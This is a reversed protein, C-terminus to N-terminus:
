DRPGGRRQRLSLLRGPQMADAGYRERVEDLAASLRRLKEREPPEFLDPEAARALNTAALGILRVGRDRRRVEGFAGALLTRATDFLDRDLDTATELTASRTVTKFDDHRLKLVVTRAVLQEHRLQAAVRTAFLLLVTELEAPDRLDRGFTTERSVSKTPRDARLVTGGHGHARLKLLRGEEGLLRVLDNESRQQVEWVERLGLEALRKASKPGVGPLARLELGALFGEEWGARVEMLGKPKAADSALKAIMRNPGVGISVALGADARVADRVAEAVPLLSVPHLRETGTFDLYGEDLSAMVVTPSFRELTARIQHSAERYWAFEGKFFTAQPCLAVARAIPMGARIGFKRAGYSASQVVGRSERRGGVVLLDVDRLPPHRRRCVEVFFADLDVHM